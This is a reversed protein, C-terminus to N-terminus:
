YSERLAHKMLGDEVLYAILPTARFFNDVTGPAFIPVASVANLEAITPGLAPTKAVVLSPALQLAAPLTVLAALFGRRGIQM